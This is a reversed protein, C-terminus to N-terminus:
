YNMFYSKPVSFNWLYDVAKKIGIRPKSVIIYSKVNVGDVVYLRSTKTLDEGYQKKTIKLSKTLKAPGNTLNEVINTKRQKIMFELGNKPILSRILVAGADHKEDKAVANVCYHMGYTFYVYARGVEGFMAKNRETIGGFSHSAPDDKYRYAETESIIGSITMGNIKRVLVKGLLNKAVDVTDQNYFSRPIIKM